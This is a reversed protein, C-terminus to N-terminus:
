FKIEGQKEKHWFKIRDARVHILIIGPTEIGDEFWQNLEDLWHEKLVEKDTTLLARGAISIYLQNKGTFSLNVNGNKKLENIVQSQEYSFFYSNGDYEVDGNNSMPRSSIIGDPAATTMMCIDLKSMMKSIDSLQTEAM